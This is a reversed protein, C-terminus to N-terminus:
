EGAANLKRPKIFPVGRTYDSDSAVSFEFDSLESNNIKLVIQMASMDLKKPISSILYTTGRSLM